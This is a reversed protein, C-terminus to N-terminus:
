VWAASVAVQVSQPLTTSTVGGNGTGDDPTFAAMASVLSNVDTYDLTEGNATFEDITTVTTSSNPDSSFWNTLEIQDTTGLVQLFLSEGTRSFWLDDKTLGGIFSFIDQDSGGASADSVYTDQDFGTDFRYTDIGLSATLTDDDDGGAITDDGAGGDLIDNGSHGFLYDNGADGSLTDNGGWGYAWDNGDGLNITNGEYSGSVDDDGSGSNLHEIGHDEFSIDLEHTGTHHLTDEGDGGDINLDGIADFDDDDIHLDDDGAGGNLEDLGSGGTLVDNGFGGKLIDNGGGGVLNDGGAGGNLQDNGFGGVLLDSGLGGILYSVEPSYVKSYIGYGSGDQNDSSWSVVFGGQSLATISPLYQRGSTFENIQFESGVVVGAADYRQAYIGYNSGDQDKSAWSVVFGGDVLGTVSPQYQTSSTYTNVQFESGIAIGDSGYLQGRVSYGNGDAGSADQWTVVFGGDSLSAISPENQTSSTVGTNIHFESGVAVGANDYRQGYIGSNSGDQGSSTWSVVFGGDSLGTVSSQHQSSTSYTNVQFESGLQVGNADYLRGRVSAGSGDSASTDKWTVVFGGGSLSAISVENQTSATVDTNIHSESGVVAGAADYRQGYIGYSDGDQDHSAWSVVFGGDSLGTVSAQYQSGASYTNVQFESGIATGDSSYLQGRVSNGDGDLGNGDQWVVVHGGALLAAVSSNNQSGATNTNVATESGAVLGSLSVAVDVTLLESMGNAHSVKVVFSDSGEYGDAATLSYSGDSNVTVSGNTPGSELVYSVGASAAAVRGSASMGAMMQAGAVGVGPFAVGLDIDGDAFRLTEINSLEDVDSGDSLKTVRIVDGIRLVEYDSLVGDFVAIDTGSGGDLSDAGGRGALTDDGAGGTLTNDGGDGSLTDAFGSGELGEIGVLVDGEADGGIGTGAALDVVVGSSSAGYAAVDVGGGGVLNDGGSGGTLRDDGAGGSLADVGTEGYLHDDGAGGNLIDIGAGGRIENDEADGTLTDAFDSGELNEISIYSDGAADGTNGAPSALNAVVGADSTAYSATDTGEGGNLTDAGAGGILTQDGDGGKLTDNTTGGAITKIVNGDIERVITQSSDITGDNNKDVTLLTTRQDASITITGTAKVTSNGNLETITGVQSGDIGISWVQKHEYTGNNDYDSEVIKTLGDASTTTITKAAITPNGSAITSAWNVRDPDGTGSRALVNATTTTVISGDTGEVAISTEDTSGDGNVDITSTQTLGDASTVITATRELEPEITKFTGGSEEESVKYIKLIETSSGDAADYWTHKRTEDIIGDGNDDEEFDLTRGDISQESTLEKIKKGTADFDTIVAKMSGDRFQTIIERQDINGDGDSDRDISTMYGDASTVKTSRDRLVSGDYISHVVVTSGDSRTTTETIESQTFTGTGEPDGQVTVTKGDASTTTESKSILSGTSTTNTITEVMAGDTQHSLTKTSVEDITGSGDIDRENTVTQADASTTTVDRSTLTAGEFYETTSTTSGDANFTTQMVKSTEPTGDGDKDWQTTVTRGDASTTITTIDQVTESYVPAASTATGGTLIARTVARIKSGDANLTNVVVTQTEALGNGDADYQTTTTLGDASTTVYRGSEAGYERGSASALPGEMSSTTVTGDAHKTQVITHNVTGDGDIDKTTQVHTADASTTTITEENLTGDGNLITLTQQRTGDAEIVLTQTQTKTTLNNEDKWVTTTSLEDASVVTTVRDRQTGDANYNFENTEKSGDQELTLVEISSEDVTGDGNLDTTTTVTLRDTSIIRTTQSDLVGAATYTSTVETVLGDANTTTSVVRDNIGDGNTDSSVTTTLQDGSQTTIERSILTADSGNVSNTTTTSGDTGFTRIETQTQYPLPASGIFSATTTTLGDDSITSVIKGTQLTGNGNYSTVTKTKSGDANLVTEDTTKSDFVGDGNADTQTTVILGNGSTTVISQETKDAQNSGTGAYNTTTTTTTGDTNLSKVAISTADIDGDGDADTSVIQTLGDASTTAITKGILVAGDLSYSFVTKTTVGDISTVSTTVSQPVTNTGLFSEVTQSLKDASIDSVVRSIQVQNAGAFTTQTETISGDANLVKVSTVREYSNADNNLYTEITKTLGDASTTTVTKGLVVTGNGNKNEVTVTSSGDANLVKTTDQTADFAGDGDVDNKTTQTLGDASTTAVSKSVLTAGDASYISSTEVSNGGVVAVTEIRDVNGDGDSDINTTRTKNDASWTQVSSSELQSNAFSQIISRTSSGDANEVTGDVKIRDFIGDGDLDISITETKGDASVLTSTKTRLSGDGNKIDETTTRSGDANDLIASINTIDTTGDGDLDTNVTKGSGDPNTITVVTKIRHAATVGDGAYDTKTETRTGDVAVTTITTRTANVVGDGTSDVTLTKSLGDASTVATESSDTSGDDNLDTVTLTLSGDAGTVRTEIQDYVGSGDVDRSVTVTLGDTSTDTVQRRTLITGSGDYDDITETVSGDGNVVLVETRKRDVVGDGNTDFETTRTNGDASTTTAITHAINGDTRSAVNTVTTSGDANSTVTEAVVFSDEDFSM